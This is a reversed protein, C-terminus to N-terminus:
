ADDVAIVIEFDDVLGQLSSSEESVQENGIQEEGHVEVVQEEAKIEGTDEDEKSDGKAMIGYDICVDKWEQETSLHKHRALYRRLEVRINRSPEAQALFALKFFAASIFHKGVSEAMSIQTLWYSSTELKDFRCKSCRGATHYPTGSGRQKVVSPSRKPTRQAEGDQIIKDKIESFSVSKKKSKSDSEEPTKQTMETEQIANVNTTTQSSTKTTTTNTAERAVASKKTTKETTPKAQVNPNIVRGFVRKVRFLSCM